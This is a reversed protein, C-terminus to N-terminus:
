AKDHMANGLEPDAGVLEPHLQDALGVPIDFPQATEIFLVRVQDGAVVLAPHVNQHQLVQEVSAHRQQLEEEFLLQDPHRHDAQAPPGQFEWKHLAEALFVQGFVRFFATLVQGGRTFGAFAVFGVRDRYEVEEFARAQRWGLVRLLLRRELVQEFGLGAPDGKHEVGHALLQVAQDVDGDM